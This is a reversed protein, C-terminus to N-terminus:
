TNMKRRAEFQDLIIMMSNQFQPSMAIRRIQIKRLPKGNDVAIRTIFKKMVNIVINRATCHNMNYGMLTAIDAIETYVDGDTQTKTTYKEM